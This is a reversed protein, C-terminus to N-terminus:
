RRRRLRRSLGAEHLLAAPWPLSCRDVVTVLLMGYSTQAVVEAILKARRSEDVTQEM